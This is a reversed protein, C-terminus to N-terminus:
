KWLDELAIKVGEGSELQKISEDLATKNANTAALYETEDLEKEYEISFADFIVKLAKEQEESKPHITIISM